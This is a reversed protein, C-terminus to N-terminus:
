SRVAGPSIFVSCYRVLECRTTRPGLPAHIGAEVYWSISIVIKLWMLIDLYWPLLQVRSRRTEEAKSHVRWLINKLIRFFTNLWIWKSSISLKNISDQLASINSNSVLAISKNSVNTWDRTSQKQSETQHGDRTKDFEWGKFLNRCFIPRIKPDKWNWKLMWPTFKVGSFVNFVVM